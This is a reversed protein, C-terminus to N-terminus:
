PGEPDLLSLVVQGAGAPTAIAVQATPVVVDVVVSGDAASTGADLVRGVTPPVQTAESTTPTLLVRDEPHVGRAPVMGPKLLVGTVVQDVGPVRATTLEARTLLTGAPLTHAAVQGVVQARDMADIAHLHEDQVAGAVELDEDTLAHGWGVERALVLVSSTQNQATVYSEVGALSGAVLM